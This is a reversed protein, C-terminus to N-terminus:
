LRLTHDRGFGEAFRIAAEAHLGAIQDGHGNGSAIGLPIVREGHQLDLLGLVPGAQLGGEFFSRIMPPTTEPWILPPKLTSM